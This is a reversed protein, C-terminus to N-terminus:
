RLVACTEAGIWDTAACSATWIVEQRVLGSYEKDGQSSKQRERGGTAALYSRIAGKEM